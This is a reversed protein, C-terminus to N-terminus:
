GQTNVSRVRRTPQSRHAAGLVPLAAGGFLSEPTVSLANAVAAIQESDWPRQGRERRSLETVEMGILAALQQLSLHKTMRVARVMQGIKVRRGDVRRM